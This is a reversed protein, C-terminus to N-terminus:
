PLKTIRFGGATVRELAALALAHNYLAENYSAAIQEETAQARLIAEGSVQGKDFVKKVDDTIESAIKPSGELDKVKQAAELWKLYTADAELAVLNTTKDVVASARTDLIEAHEVRNAKRGALNAPMELGIAGPRYEGNAVGQPIPKTHVDSSGAFTRGNPGHLKRQAAVELSTLEKAGSAQTMEGRNALAMAILADRDLDKVLPPLTDDILVLPFDPGVGVAERLAATAKRIGILAEVDKAKLLKLNLDLIKEDLKTVKLEPDGFKILDRAKSLADELKSKMRHVVKLQDRAYLVSYYNRVIAYRTEWEAQNLSAAAISVGVCAQQKRIPLGKAFIGAFKLSQLGQESSQAAALSARAAALAPQNELGMNILEPLALKAPPSNDDAYVAPLLLSTALLLFGCPRWRSTGRRGAIRNM